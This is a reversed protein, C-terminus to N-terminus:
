REGAFTIMIKSMRLNQSSNKRLPPTINVIVVPQYTQTADTAVNEVQPENLSAGYSYGAPITVGM